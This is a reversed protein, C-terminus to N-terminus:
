GCTTSRFHHSSDALNDYNLISLKTLAVMNSKHYGDFVGKAAALSALAGGLSHGTYYFTYGAYDNNQLTVSLMQSWLQNLANNFYIDVQGITVNDPSLLPVFHVLSEIGETILEFYLECYNRRHLPERGFV